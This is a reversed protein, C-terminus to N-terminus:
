FESKRRYVPDVHYTQDTSGIGVPGGPRREAWALNGEGDVVYYGYVNDGSSGDCTWTIAPHTLTVYPDVWEPSDWDALDRLGDYGGFTVPVVDGVVSESTPTWDNRFLGIRFPGTEFRTRLAQMQALLESSMVKIAM